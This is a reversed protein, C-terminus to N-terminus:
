FTYGIGVAGFFQDASGRISTYPTRKADGLSRSYGGIVVIALGGNIANGDLDVALLMNAGLSNLGGDATYEPLGSALSQAPSVSYYYGAYDDDVFEAGLSLSLATGRDLPTFYTVNPEIVMGEHAGAVDWRADVNFSLSDRPNLTGPLSIGAAIGIEFARDLEGALKVVDDKINDARDSRLRFTPGLAFNPGERSDPIFDLALGAPRTNIDVGGLSGQIIPAPFVAYDDSGDYSPGIGAGVGVRLWDGDFVNEAAIYPPPGGQGGQALAGTPTVAIACAFAGALIASKM